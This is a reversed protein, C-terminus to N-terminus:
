PKISDIKLDSVKVRTCIIMFIEREKIKTGRM